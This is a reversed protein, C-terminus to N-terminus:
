CQSKCTAMVKTVVSGMVLSALAGHGHSGMILRDFKDHQALTAIVDAAPGTKGVFSVNMGHRNFFTRIPKFVKEFEGDSYSELTERDFYAKARPPLAPTSYVVTYQHSPGLWKDHAALFALMRQTYSSGDAGVLINM